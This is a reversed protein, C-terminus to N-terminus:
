TLMDWFAVLKLCKWATEPHKLWVRRKWFLTMFHNYMLLDAVLTGIGWDFQPRSVLWQCWDRLSKHEVERKEGDDILDRFKSGKVWIVSRTSARYAWVWTHVFCIWTAAKQLKWEQNNEM